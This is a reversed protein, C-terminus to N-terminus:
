SPLSCTTNFKSSIDLGHGNLTKIIDINDRVGTRKRIWIATKKDKWTINLVVIEQALQMIRPKRNQTRTLNCTESGYHLQQYYANIIMYVKRKLVMSM